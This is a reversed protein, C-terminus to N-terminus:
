GCRAPTGNGSLQVLACLTTDSVKWVGGELVAKGSSGSLAPAGSECLDFTVTATTPGTFDVATVTVTAKSALPNGAFGQLVPAYAAGNELLAVRQAAPTAANFFTAYNTAVAKAAGTPDSPGSGGVRPATGTGCAAAVAGGTGAPSAPGSAASTAPASTGPPASPTPSSNNTSSSGCAAALMLLGAAAGVALIHGGPATM